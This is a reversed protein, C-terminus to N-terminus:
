SVGGTATMGYNTAYGSKGLRYSLGTQGFGTLLTSGAGIWSNKQAVEGQYRSQQASFLYGQKALRGQEQIRFTDMDQINATETLVELASGSRKVGAAAYGARQKGGIVRFKRALQDLQDHMALDSQQANLEAIAANQEGVRKAANGAEIQGFASM